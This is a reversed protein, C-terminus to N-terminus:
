AFISRAKALGDLLQDIDDTSNYLYVSARVAAKLGLATILPQACHHGARVAVNNDGLVEALDHPHIGDITFSIVGANHEPATAYLHINPFERLEEIGYAILERERARINELGIDSLYRAAEAIGIASSIPPTGPEFRYPSETYTASETTVKEVMGGGYMGPRMGALVDRKGFLVGIGTPGCMKHGSFVLFDCDLEAVDIPMHGVAKAADVIMLAGVEHAREAMRKVDNVTGLVNSALTAVVVKTGQSIHTDLSRLDLTFDEALPIINLTIGRRRALEQFPLLSSHHEMITTAISDGESWSLSHELMYALMNMGGTAGSTFIIEESQAGIFRAMEKRASEYALSAEEALGYTGRHVNSRFGTDYTAMADIVRKPMQATAASDLYALGSHHKFIPFDKKVDM